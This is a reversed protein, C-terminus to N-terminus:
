RKHQLQKQTETLNNNNLIKEYNSLMEAYMKERDLKSNIFYDDSEVENNNVLVADGTDGYEEEIQM